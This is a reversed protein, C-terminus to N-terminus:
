LESENRKFGGRRGDKVMEHLRFIFSYICKKQINLLFQTRHVTQSILDLAGSKIVSQSDNIVTPFSVEMLALQPLFQDEAFPLKVHNEPDAIM